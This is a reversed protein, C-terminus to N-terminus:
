AEKGACPSASYRSGFLCWPDRCRYCCDYYYVNQCIKQFSGIIMKLEIPTISETIHECDTNKADNYVFVITYQKDLKGCAYFSDLIKRIYGNSIM